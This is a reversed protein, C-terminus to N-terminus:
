QTRKPNGGEREWPPNPPEPTETPEPLPIADVRYNTPTASSGGQGPSSPAPVPAKVDQVTLGMSPSDPTIGIESFWDTHVMFQDPFLSQTTSDANFGIGVTPLYWAAQGFPNSNADRDVTYAQTWSGPSAAMSSFNGTENEAFVWCVTM